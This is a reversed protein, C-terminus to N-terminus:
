PRGAKRWYRQGEDDQPHYAIDAAADAAFLGTNRKKQRSSNPKIWSAIEKRFAPNRYALRLGEATLRALEEIKEKDTILVTQCTDKKRIIDLTSKSITLPGFPGRYNSRSAINDVTKQGKGSLKFPKELNKLHITAAHETKQNSITLGGLVGLAEAATELNKLLAGLSIYMDRKKFDAAPLQRSNDLYVEICDEGFKFRWPQTNHTSPALVAIELLKVMKNRPSMGGFGGIDIRPPTQYRKM